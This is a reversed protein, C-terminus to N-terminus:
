DFHRRERHFAEKIAGPIVSASLAGNPNPLESQKSVKAFYRYLSMTLVEFQDSQDCACLLDFTVLSRLHEFKRIELKRICLPCVFYVFIQVMRFNGAIRYVLGTPCAGRMRTCVHSM